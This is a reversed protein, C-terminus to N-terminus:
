GRGFSLSGERFREKERAFSCLPPQLLFKSGAVHNREKHFLNKLNPTNIIIIIVHNKDPMYNILIGQLMM